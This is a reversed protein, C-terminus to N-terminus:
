QLSELMVYGYALDPKGRREFNLALEQYASGVRQRKQPDPHYLTCEALKPLAVRAPSPNPLVRCGDVRILRDDALQWSAIAHHCIRQAEELLEWGGSSADGGSLGLVLARIRADANKGAFLRELARFTARQLSLGDEGGDSSSPLTGRRPSPGFPMNAVVLLDGEFATLECWAIGDRIDGPAKSYRRPSLGNLVRNLEAYALARPNIDLLRQAKGDLAWATHGCGGALDLTLTEENWWGARDIVSLLLSSEDAFPLVRDRPSRWTGDTLFYLGAHRNVKARLCSQTALGIESLVEDDAKDLKYPSSQGPGRHWMQYRPNSTLREFAARTRRVRDSNRLSRAVDQIETQRLSDNVAARSDGLLRPQSEM